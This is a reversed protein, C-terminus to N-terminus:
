TLFLFCIRYLYEHYFRSNSKIQFFSSFCPKLKIMYSNERFLHHSVSGELANILYPYGEIIMNLRLEVMLMQKQDYLKYTMYRISSVTTLCM